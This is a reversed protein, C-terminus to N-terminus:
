EKTDRIWYHALGTRRIGTYEDLIADRLEPRVEWNLMEANWAESIGELKPERVPIIDESTM